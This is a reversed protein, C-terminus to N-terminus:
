TPVKQWQEAIIREMEDLDAPALTARAEELNRENAGLLDALENSSTCRKVKTGLLAIAWTRWDRKGGKMPPAIELGARPTDAPPPPEAPALHEPPAGEEEMARSTPLGFPDDAARAARQFEEMHQRIGDREAPSLGAWFERFLVTGGAAVERAEALIDRQPLPEAEGTVAAFQDLDAAADTAELMAPMDRVEEPVYFGSTAMPCVTRVGESVCRSRLMQRPFKRWMDKSALGAKAARATDWIIRITGGQPHAFTADAVDDSLAHWEVRGGAHIFDRMMAESTKAPKGQIINYDRAAEAPHRGEAQSIAMLVLAQEKTTIGFMRSRAVAEALKEIDAISHTAAPRPPLTVVENQPM